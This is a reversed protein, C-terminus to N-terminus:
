KLSLVKNYWIQFLIITTIEKKLLYGDKKYSNFLLELYELNFIEQNEIEDKVFFHDRLSELNSDLFIRDPTFWGTKKRNKVYNPIFNNKKLLFKRNFFSFKKSNEIFFLNKILSIDQFPVRAEVSNIM